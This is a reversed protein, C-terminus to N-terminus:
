LAMGKESGSGGVLEGDNEDLDLDSDENLANRVRGNKERQGGMTDQMRSSRVTDKGQGMAEEAGKRNGINDESFDSGGEDASTNITSLEDIMGEYFLIQDLIAWFGIWDEGLIQILGERKEEARAGESGSEKLYEYAREYM